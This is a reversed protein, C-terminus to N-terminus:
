LGLERSLHNADDQSMEGPDGEDLLLLEVQVGAVSLKLGMDKASKQAQAEADYLLFVRNFREYIMKVQAAKFATGFTAIAGPGLRWADAFGEVIVASTGKVLDVAYLSNKHDYAEDIEACAKYKLDSKGTIDRGQYSIMQGNLFIPAIIRHKYEGVPGTGRLGYIEELWDPDFKRNILYAAHRDTMKDTGTPWAVNKNTKIKKQYKEPLRTRGNYQKVLQYAQPWSCNLLAQVVAPISKGKCRWCSSYEGLLNIGLHYGRSGACFPCHIQVWGPRARSHGQIVHDINYDRLFKIADFSM